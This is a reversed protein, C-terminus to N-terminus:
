RERRLDVRRLGRRGAAHHGVDVDQQGGLAGVGVDGSAHAGPGVLQDGTQGLLLEDHVGHHGVGGQGYPVLRGGIQDVDDLDGQPTGLVVGLEVRAGSPDGPAQAPGSAVEVLLEQRGVGLQHDRHGQAFPSGVVQHRGQAGERHVGIAVAELLGHPVTPGPAQEPVGQGGMGQVLAQGGVLGDVQGARDVPVQGRQVVRGVEGLHDMGRGGGEAGDGSHHKPLPPADGEEEGLVPDVVAFPQQRQAAVPGVAGIPDEEGVEVGGHDGHGVRSGVQHCRHGTEVGGPLHSQADVLGLDVRHGVSHIRVVEWEGPRGTAPGVGQGQHRHGSEFPQLVNVGQEAGEGDHPGPNGPDPELDVTGLAVGAIGAAAIGEGLLQLQPRRADEAARGSVDALGEVLSVDGDEGADRFSEGEGGDLTQHGSTGHHGGLHAPDGLHDLGGVPAQDRGATREFQGVGDTGHRGIAAPRASSPSSPRRAM